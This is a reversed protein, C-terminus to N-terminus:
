TSLLLCPHRQWSRQPSLVPSLRAPNPAPIVGGGTGTEEPPSSESTTYMFEDEEETDEM